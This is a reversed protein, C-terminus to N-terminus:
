WVQGLVAARGRAGAPAAPAAWVEWGRWLHVSPDHPCPAGPLGPHPRRAGLVSVLSRLALRVEVAGAAGWWRGRGWGWGRPANAPSRSRPKRLSGPPLLTPSVGEEEREPPEPGM